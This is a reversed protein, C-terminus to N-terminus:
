KTGAGLLHPTEYINGIVESKEVSWNGIDIGEAHYNRVCFGGDNWFVVNEDGRFDLIIDGEYIERGTKDKLGTYQMLIKTEFSWESMDVVAPSDNDWFTKMDACIRDSGPMPNDGDPYDVFHFTAVGDSVVLAFGDYRMVNSDNDWARFKIERQKM